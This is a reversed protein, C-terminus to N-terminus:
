YLWMDFTRRYSATVPHTDGLVTFLAVGLKRAGDDLLFRNVKLVEIVHEISTGYQGEELALVASKFADAGKEEPLDDLDLPLFTSLTKIASSLQMFRPEGTGATEALKTARDPDEFVILSALLGCAMSNTPESRLAEELLRIAGKSDEADILAEAQLIQDKAESPLAKNLWQRIAMEPLSGTFEDIVEGKHFLKVAPIGKVGYQQSLDQRQDSNIKILTWRDAQEKALKEIIPGLVRCPGCWPAWFDVLVPKTHSAQLVDEEFSQLEFGM